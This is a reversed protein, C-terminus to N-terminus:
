LKQGILGDITVGCARQLERIAVGIGVNIAFDRVHLRIQEPLQDGRVKGWFDRRYLFKAREKTLNLIDEDPYSAASIGQKIGKLVGKGVKGGTWYLNVLGHPHIIPSIKDIRM